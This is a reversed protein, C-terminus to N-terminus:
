EIQEQLEDVGHYYDKKERWWMWDVLGLVLGGLRKVLVMTLITIWLSEKTLLALVKDPTREPLLVDFLDLLYTQGEIFHVLSISIVPACLMSVFRYALIRTSARAYMTRLLRRFELIELRGSRDTDAQQFLKTVRERSPPPIPAQQNVKIYFKLVLDYVESPSVSGHHNTDADEFLHDSYSDLWRQIRPFKILKKGSEDAVSLERTKSSSSGIGGGRPFSWYRPHLVFRAPRRWALVAWHSPLLLSLSFLILQRSIM